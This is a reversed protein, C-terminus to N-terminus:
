RCHIKRQVPVEIKTLGSSKYTRELEKFALPDLVHHIVRVKPENGPPDLSSTSFTEVAGAGARYYVALPGLERFVYDTADDAPRCPDPSASIWLADYNAGRVERKFYVTTGESTSVGDVGYQSDPLGGDCATWAITMVALIAGVVFKM